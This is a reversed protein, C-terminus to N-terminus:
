LRRHCDVTSKACTSSSLLRRTISCRAKNPSTFVHTLVAPFNNACYPSHRFLPLKRFRHPCSLKRVAGCEERASGWCTVMLRLGYESIIRLPRRLITIRIRHTRPRTNQMLTEVHIYLQTTDTDTDTHPVRSCM